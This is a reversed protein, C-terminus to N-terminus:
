YCNDELDIITVGNEEFSHLLLCNNLIRGDFPSEIKEFYGTEVLVGAVFTEEDAFSFECSILGQKCEQVYEYGATVINNKMLKYAEDQSLSMSSRIGMMAVVSVLSVLVIVALVEIITFGSRNM